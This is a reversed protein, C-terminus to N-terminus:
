RARPWGSSCSRGSQLPPRGPPGARLSTCGTRDNRMGRSCRAQMLGVGACVVILITLLEDGQDHAVQTALGRDLAERQSEAAFLIVSGAGTVLSTALLPLRNPALLLFAGLAIAAAPVALSSTTLWLTLGVLPLAAAALSQMAITRASATASLLLPLAIAALAGLASSYNLPYALRREIEIGPLFEGANSQPFLSPELRSLVAIGCVIAVGTTVGSLMHRWRGEGQVALALAFVGLYTGVRALEISTLGASDTWVLSLATWGAFLALAGIMLRGIRTGGAAPLLGIVTGILILWWVAVGVQDRPIEAYGGSNLALYVILLLTLLWTAFAAPDERLEGVRPIRLVARETAEM